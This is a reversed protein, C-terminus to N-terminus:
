GKGKKKGVSSMEDLKIDDQNRNCRSLSTKHKGIRMTIDFCMQNDGMILYIDHHTFWDKNYHQGTNM